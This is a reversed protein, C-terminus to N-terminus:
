SRGPLDAPEAGAEAEAETRAHEGSAHEGRAHESRGHPRGSTADAGARAGEVPDGHGGGVPGRVDGVPDGHGGGVPGRVDGVPGRVGGVPDGGRVGDGPAGDVRAGDVRAGDVRVRAGDKPEGDVRAGGGPEGQAVDPPVLPLPSRTLPDGVCRPLTLRFASGDGTRGWAQLWGGHLRADEISISLGLGSGGSRRARSEEARWFRNFVLASEGPRLGVGHDRVLVAVAQDDAALTIEVPRGEGHDVANAVLNRVIREVRRSDVEAYVGEPVDLVLPTGTEDSLGHVAEVARMVVTHMDVQEAGLEAVGADLRSIELLDGLLAEFRDLEAVLLESSRRLSPLLEHRSAHLV